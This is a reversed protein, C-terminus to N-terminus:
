RFAVILFNFQYVHVEIIVIMNGEGICIAIDNLQISYTLIPLAMLLCGIYPTQAGGVWSLFITFARQEHSVLASLHRKLYKHLIIMLMLCHYYMSMYLSNM